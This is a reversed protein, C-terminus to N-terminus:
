DSHEIRTGVKGMGVEVRTEPPIRTLNGAVTDIVVVVTPDVVHMADVRNSNKRM